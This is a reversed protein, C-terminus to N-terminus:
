LKGKRYRALADLLSRQLKNKSKLRMMIAEDVTDKAVIHHVRVQGKVGQRYVRRVFQLYNELSDTLAFWAVDNGGAQLNIGHSMSQPHGLLVPLEGRNWQAIFKTSDKASVNGGITPTNEGFAELLQALDHKYHFAVLLPKGQLEGVLEKIAEIKLAHIPIIERDKSPQALELPEPPRYLRGNAVQRCVNYAAAMTKISFGDEYGDIEAFLRKEFDLYVKKVKPPLEVDIRHELLEPLDLNSEADIRMIVPAIARQISEAAGAKPQYEVFNRYSTPYFFRRRYATINPGLTEGQDVIFLQSYLDLLNNPSPTGTLIIRRDFTDLVKKLKKVRQSANNKFKSSEDIVLIDYEPCDELLWFVNEANLMDITARNNVRSVKEEGHLISYDFVLDWKAIEAPWVSYVVRLPAILLVRLRCASRWYLRDLLHLVMATKGLNPDAFLGCHPHAELFDIGERQYNHPNFHM